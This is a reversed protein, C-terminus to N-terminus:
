LFLRDEIDRYFDFRRQAKQYVLKRVVDICYNRLVLFLIVFVLYFGASPSGVFTKLGILYEDDLLLITGLINLLFYIIHSFHVIEKSNTLSMTLFIYIM